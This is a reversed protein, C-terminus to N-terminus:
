SYVKNSHWTLSQAIEVPPLMAHSAELRIAEGAMGFIVSSEKDQVITLADLGKLRKLEEAGDKGMGTLLVAAANGGYADAVSGFLYDISPCMGNRPEEQSLYIRGGKHIGMQVHDPAVFAIGPQAMEGHTAVQVPFGTSQSLWDVFGQVFGPSIHQVILVPFPLTKPLRSLVTQLVIPGGTSAGMAVIQIDTKKKNLTSFGISRVAPEAVLDRDKGRTLNRRKVVKVEAMLKVTQVLEQATSAHEAHGLGCPRPLVALAGAELALFTTSVEKVDWSGSVIVIPVPNTEMIRRTTEFGNMKPMNIDMTVVDPRMHQLSQIAEEGNKAIGVVQIEPDSNLIACLFERIVASDEVVFVKIM